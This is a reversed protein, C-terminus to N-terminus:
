GKDPQIIGLTEAKEAAKRRGSVNLKGYINHLHKKVTQHSIFLKAAIEKDRLRQSVLELIEIERNSLPEVMPQSLPLHPSSSNKESADPVTRYEDEKFADLIRKIYGMAVNQKILQKLLDAMRPGLNVFLRVFGGREALNLAATLKELAVPHEGRANHLLAQLALADIRFRNNHISALFEDLQDLLDAAQQLSNTTNQAMRIKILTLPTFCFLYPPLYPKASFQEARHSAVSLYGQRLALEAEFARIILLADQNNTDIAYKMVTECVKRVREIKGRAQYVLALAVSSHAYIVPHVYYYNKDIATLKEEAIELRNQHYYAIGLFYLSFFEAEPLGRDIAIRLSREATKQLAILDADIWYIFCLNALYTARYGSHLSISKKLEDQYNSLGTELDGIMQHAGTQFVHAFVRARKHHMPINKCASRLDKRAKEGEALLFRQIGRLANFHGKIQTASISTKASLKDYLTKLKKFTLRDLGGTQVHILWAELILLEPNQEVQDRTFMSLWRELRPWQQDNMLDHGHLAVLQMAAPIAGGALAHQLAEEILGNEAFWASAQIHLANIEATGCHRKLQNFLLKQFLHHYRFWRKEPDLHILFLNEKRLWAIFEWGGIEGAFPKDGPARLAECLPGCFRDLIATALLYQSIEPPQHSFVETFLYEMVYQANVHPELMRTDIDAGQRMSLAALRVGTVWGETKEEVSAATSLSVQDGLLQNLLTQTEAVNFSLDQTRIETVRSQARLTVIPFPPDYRGSIVLHFSKPPHKLIDTILKHLTTEKIRYYDDLVLIFPQEIRNLENLLSTSLVTIPPLNPTNLLTQTNRCAEPFLSKIAAIFYSMFIQLDDDNEDLSVWASRIDCAELWCGILFTKGYGAPASVLTLPRDRHQDLRALLHPRHVHIRDVPPRHLKTTILPDTTTEGAM